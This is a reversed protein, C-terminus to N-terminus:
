CHMIFNTKFNVASKAQEILDEFLIYCDISKLDEDKCMDVEQCCCFLTEVWVDSRSEEGSFDMCETDIPHQSKEKSAGAEGEDCEVSRKEPFNSIRKRKGPATNAIFRTTEKTERDCKSKTKRRHRPKLFDHETLGPSAHPQPDVAMRKCKRRRRHHFLPTVNDTFSDSEVLTLPKTRGPIMLHAACSDESDSQRTINEMYDKLAEDLSSESAESMNAIDWPTVIMAEPRRKRPRRKKTKHKEHRGRNRSSEELAFGLDQVLEDMKQFDYSALVHLKEFGRVIDMSSEEM